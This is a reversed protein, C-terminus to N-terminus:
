PKFLEVRLDNEALFDLLSTSIPFVHRTDRTYTSEDYQQGPPCEEWTLIFEDKHKWVCVLGEKGEVGYILNNAKGEELRRLFTDTTM